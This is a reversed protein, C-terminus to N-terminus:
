EWQATLGLVSLISWRSSIYLADFFSTYGAELQCTIHWSSDASDTLRIKGGLGGTYTNLKSLERDGTRYRPVTWSGDEAQLLEYARQWFSANSQAHLRLHPWIMVRSGLDIMVRADTTTAFLGWSDTYLREDIRLTLPGHRTALRGTVAYRNRESPLREIPRVPLRKTNVESISAGVSVDVGTGPAFLPIYRYPKALYGREVDADLQVSAITFHNLVFTAGLQLGGRQLLEWDARPRGKVGVDDHGYRIGVFPTLNKELLDMSASVGASLSLYDPEHSVGASGSVHLPGRQYSAEVSGVHRVEKWRPSATAVIDVSAASVVDVLYRGSVSVGSEADTVSAAVTPSAVHVQMSDTYGALETSATTTLKRACVSAVEMRSGCLLLAVLCILRSQLVLRKATARHPATLQLRM